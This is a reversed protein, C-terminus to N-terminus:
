NLVGPSPGAAPWPPIPLLEADSLRFSPLPEKRMVAEYVTKMRSAIQSWDFNAALARCRVLRDATANADSLSDLVQHVKAAIDPVEPQCVWGTDHRAVAESLPVGPTLLVPTGAAMAEMAAIAFSESFSTLAFADCGQLLVQKDEGEAFGTFHVRGRLPGDEAMRRVQRVYDDPGSGAVILTFRREHCNALAELLLHLGKKVHLRSLFLLVPEDAPLGLRDRVRRRADPIQRPLHLGFPLVFGPAKLRLPDAEDMEHESTYELGAAGNINRNELLSLYLKKRLASQTLSWTCLLGLPRALYPVGQLRAHRMSATPAHSFFAHAHLLDYERLHTKVWSSLEGSWAFERIARPKPSFRPFFRVPAGEHAVLERLPVDLLDPGNDNTTVIEVQMGDLRNLAATLELVAQSPGGRVPGVSPIVHLVRLSM